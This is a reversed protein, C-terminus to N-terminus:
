GCVVALALLSKVADAKLQSTSQGSTSSAQVLSVIENVYQGPSSHSLLTGIVTEMAAKPVYTHVPTTDLALSVRVRDVLSRQFAPLAKFALRVTARTSSQVIAVAFADGAGASDSVVKKAHALLKQM